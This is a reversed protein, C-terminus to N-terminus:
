RLFIKRFRSLNRASKKRNASKEEMMSENEDSDSSPTCPPSYDYGNKTSSPRCSALSQIIDGTRRRLLRPIQPISRQLDHDKTPTLTSSTPTVSTSPPLMTHHDDFSTENDNGINLSEDDFGLRNNPGFDMSWRRIHRNQRKPPLPPPLLDNDDSADAATQLVLPTQQSQPSPIPAESEQPVPKRPIEKKLSDREQLYSTVSPLNNLLNNDNGGSRIIISGDKAHKSLLLAELVKNKLNEQQNEARVNQLAIDKQGVINKLAQITLRCQELEQALKNNQNKLFANEMKIRDVSPGNRKSIRTSKRLSPSLPRGLRSPPRNNLAQFDIYDDQEVDSEEMEDESDALYHHPPMHPSAIDLQSFALEDQHVFTADQILSFPSRFSPSYELVDNEDFKPAAM